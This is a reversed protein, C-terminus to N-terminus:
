PPVRGLDLQALTAQLARTLSHSVLAQPRLVPLHADATKVLGLLLERIPGGDGGGLAHALVLQTEPYEEPSSVSDVSAALWVDEDRIVVVKRELLEVEHSKGLRRPLDLLLVARGRIVIYERLYGPGGPLPRALPMEYVGVVGELPMGLTVGGCTMWLVALSGRRERRRVAELAADVAENLKDARIPKPLFAIAGAKLCQRARDEESSVIVVPIDRLEPSEQMKRLVEDGDMVPMSLDLLVLDPRIQSIKKLAEVGNTAVSTRYRGGLAAQEFRLIAESDDVLLLHHAAM